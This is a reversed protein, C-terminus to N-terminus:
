THHAVEMLPVVLDHELIFRKNDILSTELGKILGNVEFKQYFQKVDFSLRTAHTQGLKSDVASGKRLYDVGNCPYKREPTNGFM